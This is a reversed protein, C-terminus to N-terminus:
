EIPRELEWERPLKGGLSELCYSVLKKIRKTREKISSAKAILEYLEVFKGDKKAIEQNQYKAKVLPIKHFQCFIDILNNLLLGANYQWSFIDKDRLSDEIDELYDNIFYKNIVLLPYPIAGGTLESKLFRKAEAQLKKLEGGKDMMIRGDSLMYAITQRLIIKDKVKKWDEKLQELPYVFYDVAADDVLMIGRWRKGINKIVVYLDLDSNRRIKKARFSSGFGLIAVVEINESPHKVKFQRIFKYIIPKYM